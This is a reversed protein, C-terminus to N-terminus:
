LIKPSPKLNSRVNDFEFIMGCPLAGLLDLFIKLSPSDALM